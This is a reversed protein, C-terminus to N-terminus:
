YALKLAQLAIQLLWDAQKLKVYRVLPGYQM